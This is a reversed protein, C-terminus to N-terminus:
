SWLCRYYKGFLILGDNIQNEIKKIGDIDIQYTHNPGEIMQLMNDSTKIFQFDPTGTKYQDEWSDNIIHEFSFIMKDLVYDWRDFHFEDTDNQNEKSQSSSSKINDPVDCDDVLPAGQKNEKIKKLMPLIILALTYDMNWVDYDNIIIKIKREKRSYFFDYIKNLWVSEKIKNTIFKPVCIKEIFDAIQHPGIWKVYPGIYVKM